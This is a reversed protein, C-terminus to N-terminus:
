TVPRNRALLRIGPQDPPVLRVLDDDPTRSRRINEPFNASVERRSLPATAEPSRAAAVQDIAAATAATTTAPGPIKAPPIVALALWRSRGAGGLPTGRSPRWDAFPGPSPARGSDIGRHRLLAVRAATRHQRPGLRGTLGPLTACPPGAFEAPVRAPVSPPGFGGSPDPPSRPPAPSAPCRCFGACLSCAQDLREGGLGIAEASSIEPGRRKRRRRCPSVLIQEGM